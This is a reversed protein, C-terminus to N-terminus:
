THQIQVNGAAFIIFSVVGLIFLIMSVINLRGTWTTYPNSLPETSDKQELNRMEEDWANCQRRYAEQSTLFSVLTSLISLTLCLWTIILFCFSWCVPRTAIDHMFIISLGLGGSALTLIHKDYSLSQSLEGSILVERHKMYVELQMRKFELEEKEAM